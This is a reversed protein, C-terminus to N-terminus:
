RYETFEVSRLLSVGLNEFSPDAVDPPSKRSLEVFIGVKPYKPHICNMGFYEIMTFDGGRKAGYDKSMARHKVCTEARETYLQEENRVTEFRGTQPEASRGAKVFSLFQQPSLSSPLQYTSVSTVFTENESSGRAGLSMQYTSLVIISWSKGVPPIFSIGPQDIRQGGTIQPLTACASFCLSLACCSAWRM